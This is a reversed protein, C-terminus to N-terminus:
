RGCRARASGPACGRRCSRHARRAAPVEHAAGIQHRPVEVVPELGDHGHLVCPELQAEARGRHAARPCSRRPAGRPRHTSARRGFFPSRRAGPLRRQHAARRAAARRARRGAAEGHEGSVAGGSRRARSFACGIFTATTSTPEFVIRRSTAARPPSPSTLEVVSARLRGRRPCRAGRRPRPRSAPRPPRTGAPSRRSAAGRRPAARTTTAEGPRRRPVRILEHDASAAAPAGTRTSEPVLLGARRRPRRRARRPADSDTATQSMPPPEVWIATPVTSAPGGPHARDVEAREPEAGAHGPRGAPWPRTPPGADSAAAANSVYAASASSPARRRRCRGRRSSAPRGSARRPPARSASRRRRLSATRPRRWYPRSGHRASARGAPDRDQELDLVGRTGSSTARPGARLGQARAVRGAGPREPRCCTAWCRATASTRSRQAAEDLPVWRADDVEHAPAAVRGDVPRM